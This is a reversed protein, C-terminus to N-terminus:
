LILMSDGYSFFRYRERIAEQYASKIVEYGAFASVLVLLSSRPLHFNTILGDVAHFTHGPKIYLSTEGAFPELLGTTAASELARTSTTGVAIVRGGNQRRATIQTVAEPTIRAWEAHMAHLDIDDAQIPRFTGAGISVTLDAWTIGRYSLRQFLAETFHLGATPAAASGPEQAYVTQYDVVDAPEPRGGRIYPPLPTLGHHELLAMASSPGDRDTRPAVIWSGGEGRAELILRLGDGVLIEEGIQPRGRTTALIRWRRDPEEKLFLGEWKGGTAARRGLLRAPVVRTNNRVLVDRPDILEPLDSFVHHRLRGTERDVVLLRASDRPSAPYRAILDDPLNFDFEATRM